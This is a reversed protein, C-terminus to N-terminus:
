ENQINKYGGLTYENFNIISRIDIRIDILVMNNITTVFLRKRSNM